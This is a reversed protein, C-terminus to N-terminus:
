QREEYSAECCSKERLYGSPCSAAGFHILRKLLMMGRLRLGVYEYKTMGNVECVFYSVL